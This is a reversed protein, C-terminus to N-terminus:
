RYDRPIARYYSRLVPQSYCYQGSTIIHFAALLLYNDQYVGEVQYQSDGFAAVSPDIRVKKRQYATNEAAKDLYAEAKCYESSTLDMGPVSSYTLMVTEPRAGEKSKGTSM